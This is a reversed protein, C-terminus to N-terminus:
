LFLARQFLAFLEICKVGLHQLEDRADAIHLGYKLIRLLSGLLSYLLVELNVGLTLHTQWVQQTFFECRLNAGILCFEWCCFETNDENVAIYLKDLEDLRVQLKNILEMSIVIDMFSGGIDFGHHWIQNDTFLVHGLHCTAFQAIVDLHM